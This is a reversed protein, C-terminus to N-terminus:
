TLSVSKVFQVQKAASIKLACSSYVSRILLSILEELCSLKDSIAEYGIVKSRYKGQIAVYFKTCFQNFKLCQM